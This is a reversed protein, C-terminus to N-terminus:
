SHSGRRAAHAALARDVIVEVSGLYTDPDLLAAIADPDLRDAVARTAALVDAISRGTADAEAVAGAVVEHAAARGLRPALALAVRETLVGGGARELNARM